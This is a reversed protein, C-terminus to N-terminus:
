SQSLNITGTLNLPNNNQTSPEPNHYIVHYLAEGSSYSPRGFLQEGENLYFKYFEDVKPFKISQNIDSKFEITGLEGGGTLISVFGGGAVGTAVVGPSNFTSSPLKVKIMKM